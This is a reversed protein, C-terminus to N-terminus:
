SKVNGMWTHNIMNFNELFFSQDCTLYVFSIKVFISLRYFPFYKKTKLLLRNETVNYGLNVRVKPLLYKKELLKVCNAPCLVATKRM